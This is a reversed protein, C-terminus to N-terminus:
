TFLSNPEISRNTCERAFPGSTVLGRSSVELSPYRLAEEADAYESTAMTALNAGMM